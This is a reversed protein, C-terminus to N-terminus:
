KDEVEKGSSGEGSVANQEEKKREHKPMREYANPSPRRKKKKQQKQFRRSNAHKACPQGGNPLDQDHNHEDPNDNRRRNIWRAREDGDSSDDDSSSFSSSEESSEGFARPKHYICCVVTM